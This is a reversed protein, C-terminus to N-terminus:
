SPKLVQPHSKLESFVLAPGTLSPPHLAPLVPMKEWEASTGALWHTGEAGGVVM